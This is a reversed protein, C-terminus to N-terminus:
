GEWGLDDFLGAPEPVDGAEASRPGYEKWDPCVSQGLCRGGDGLVWETCWQKPWARVCARDSWRGSTLQAALYKRVAKADARYSLDAMLRRDAMWAAAEEEDLEDLMDAIYGLTDSDLSIDPLDLEKRVRAVVQAPACGFGDGRDEARWAMLAQRLSAM